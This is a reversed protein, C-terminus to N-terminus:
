GGPALAGRRAPLVPSLPRLQLGPLATLPVLPPDTLVVPWTLESFPRLPPDGLLLTGLVTGLPRLEPDTLFPLGPMAPLDKFALLTTDGAPAFKTLSWENTLGGTVAFVIAGAPSDLVAPALGPPIDGPLALTGASGGHGPAVIMQLASAAPAFVVRGSAFVGFVPRQKLGDFVWRQNGNDRDFARVLNDMSAVYVRDDDAAIAGIAQAGLRYPPRPQGSKLGDLSYFLKDGTGVYVRGARAAIATVGESHPLFRAWLEAGDTLQLALIRGDVAGTYLRGGDIAPPLQVGGAAQRWAVEGSRARLVIVETDTTAVVWDVTAVLPAVTKTRPLIWASTGKDARLAEVADGSSIFVFDGASAMPLTVSKRQRWVERGDAADFAALAGSAYAVYVRTGNSVPGASVAGDLTVSWWQALPLLPPAPRENAPASAACVAILLAM